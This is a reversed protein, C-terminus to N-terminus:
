VKLPHTENIHYIKLYRLRPMPLAFLDALEYEDAWLHLEEVHPMRAILDPIRATSFLGDMPFLMEDSGEEQDKGLKLVRVAALHPSRHLPTIDDFHTELHLETCLKLQPANAMARVMDDPLYPVTLAAIWGR